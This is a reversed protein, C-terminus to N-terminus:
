EIDGHLIEGLQDSVERVHDDTLKPDLVAIPPSSDDDPVGKARFLWYDAGDDSRRGVLRLVRKRMLVLGLVFRFAQRQAREDEGLREFLNLLLDDDVFVRRRITPDPVVCKWFSYLRAPRSGAEWAAISYDQRVLADDTEREILAAMCMSGPILPEGTAACVGTSRAIEFSTGTRTM